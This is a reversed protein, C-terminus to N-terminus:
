LSRRAAGAQDHGAAERARLVAMVDALPVPEFEGSLFDRIELVSKHQRAPDRARREHAPAACARARRGASVRRRAWWRGWRRRRWRPRRRRLRCLEANRQRVRRDPHVGREGGGDAATPWPQVNSVSRTCRTSRRSCGGHARRRDQRDLGRDSALRKPAAAPDAYLVGVLPHRGERRRGSASRSARTRGRRRCRRRRTGRRRSLQDGQAAAVGMRESGRGLNESTVRAAMEDGGTAIVALAGTGVVAARKYQTSDQKDPTDQSSHYWMDPWTIFM